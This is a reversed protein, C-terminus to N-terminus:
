LPLGLRQLVAAADRFDDFRPAHDVARGIAIFEYGLDASARKDWAGDGFYTRRSAPADGLARREAIRMIATRELADSATALAVTRPDIGIAALKLTATEAWGGTAIAVRVDARARLTDILARAGAVERIAAPSRAFRAQTAAVFRSKVAARLEDRAGVAAHSELLEELIGSDTVHRYARYTTDVDAGLVSRVIEAYLGSDFGVSDALTGDIDFM